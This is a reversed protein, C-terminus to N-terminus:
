QHSEKTRNAFVLLVIGALAAISGYIAWQTQGTMVSGALVNIGQLIWVGGGIILVIAILNMIIRMAKM